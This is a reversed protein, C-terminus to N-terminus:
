AKLRALVHYAYTNISDHDCRLVENLHEYQFWEPAPVVVPEILECSFGAGDVLREIGGRTFFRLHTVCHIGAPVYDWRGALLDAIVSWHGVNPISLLLAGGPSLLTRAKELWVSPSVAHELVDLFSICDFLRGFETTLFDGQWVRDVRKRAVKCAHEAFEALHTECGRQAKVYELFRGEGGGVDLLSVCDEPLLRLMESRDLQHYGGFDHAFCGPVFGSSSSAFGDFQELAGARCAFVLPEYAAPFDPLHGSMSLRAAYAEFGRMTLYDPAPTLGPLRSDPVVGPGPRSEIWAVLSPLTGPALWLAGHTLFVVTEGEPIGLLEIAQRARSFFDGDVDVHRVSCASLSRLLEKEAFLLEESVASQPAACIVVVVSSLM